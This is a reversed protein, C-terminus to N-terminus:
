DHSHGHIEWYLKRYADISERLSAVNDLDLTQKTRMAYVTIQHLLALQRDYTGRDRDAEPFKVRQSLFYGAVEAKIKDAHADKNNVWRILQNMDPKEAAELTRIEKMSKEITAVHQGLEEFKLEDDYIGCPIECHAWVAKPSVTMLAMVFFIMMRPFM